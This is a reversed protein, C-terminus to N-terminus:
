DRSFPSSWILRLAFRPPPLPPDSQGLRVQLSRIAERLRQPAETQDDLRLGEVDDLLCDSEALLSRRWAEDTKEHVLGITAAAMPHVM